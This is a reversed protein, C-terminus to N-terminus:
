VLGSFTRGPAGVPPQLNILERWSEDPPIPASMGGMHGYGPSHYPSGDLWMQVTEEAGPRVPKSTGNRCEIVFAVAGSGSGNSFFPAVGPKGTQGQAVLTLLAALVMMGRDIM